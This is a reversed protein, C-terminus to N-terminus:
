SLQHLLAGWREAVTTMTFRAAVHDFAAQGLAASRGDVDAIALALARPTPDSVLAGTRGDVVLDALGGVDPVVSPTAALGAEIVVGPMGESRSALVLVSAHRHYPEPDAVPGLMVFREGLASEGRTRLESALPGDGACVLALGEVEAVADIVRDVQKEWSLSGVYLAYRDPVDDPRPASRRSESDTVANPIVHLRSAPVKALRHLADAADDYLAVVARAGALRAATALRRRPRDLWFTPDGISRYVFRGPVSTAAAHLTTSGHAIVLSHETFVQRRRRLGRPAVEVDLGESDADDLAMVRGPVGLEALAENLQVAFVQAGRRRRDSILHLM